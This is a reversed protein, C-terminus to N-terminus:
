FLREQWFMTFRQSIFGQDHHYTQLIFNIATLTSVTPPSSSALKSYLALVIKPRGLVVQALLALL